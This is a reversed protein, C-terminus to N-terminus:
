EGRRQLEAEFSDIYEQAEDEWGNEEIDQIGNELDLEAMEGFVPMSYLNFLEKAHYRHLMKICNKIHSTKMDRIKLKIGERTTWKRKM